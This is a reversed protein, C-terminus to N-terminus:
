GLFPRRTKALAWCAGYERSRLASMCDNLELRSHIGYIEVLCNVRDKCVEFDRGFFGYCRSRLRSSWFGQRQFELGLAGYSCVAGVPRLEVGSVRYDGQLLYFIADPIHYYSGRYGM